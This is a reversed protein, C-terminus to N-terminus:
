RRRSGRTLLYAAGIAAAAIAATRLVGKRNYRWESAAGTERVLNPPRLRALDSVVGEVMDVRDAFMLTIWRILRGESWKYGADRLRGSLGRPPCSTGFVPTLKGHETSKHIRHPPQQREIDPYLMEAGIDPSKDRPVGPRVNRDIDSGWGAITASHDINRRQEGTLSIGGPVPPQLRDETSSGLVQERM